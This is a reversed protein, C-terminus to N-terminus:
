KECIVRNLDEKGDGDEDMYKWEVDGSLFVWGYTATGDVRGYLWHNQYDNIFDCHIWFVREAALHGILGCVNYPGSRVEVSAWTLLYGDGNPRKSPGACDVAQAPAAGFVTALTTSLVVASLLAALRRGRHGASTTSRTL